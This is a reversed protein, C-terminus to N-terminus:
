RFSAWEEARDIGVLQQISGFLKQAVETSCIMLTCVGYPYKGGCGDGRKFVSKRVCGAKLELKNVWFREIEQASFGNDLYANVHITFDEAGCGFYRKLFRTFFALMDADMNTFRVDNKRKSGEAWFLMCGMAYEMDGKAAMERGQQQYGLRRELSKAKNASSGQIWSRHGALESIQEETLPIDRVWYSVSSKAVGVEKAIVGISKGAKRLEIAKQKEQKKM